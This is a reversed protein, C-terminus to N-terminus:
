ASTTNELDHSVEDVEVIKGDLEHVYFTELTQADQVPVKKMFQLSMRLRTQGEVCRLTTGNLRHITLYM